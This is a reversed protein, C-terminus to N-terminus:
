TTRGGDANHGPCDGTLLSSVEAFEDVCGDPGFMFPVYVACSPKTM